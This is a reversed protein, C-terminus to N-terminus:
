LVKDVIECANSAAPLGCANAPTGAVPYQGGNVLQIWADAFGADRYKTVSVGANTYRDNTDGAIIVAQGQSHASIYSLVQDVGASRAAVDDSHDGADGHLNYLDVSAGAINIRMYTFGKPTLCDGGNLSCKDWKIRQLGTWSYRAVTNLGSGFPVGGSTATRYPHNDSAYIYAHYNFDEQMHVVDYNDRALQAGILGANTAKDGPVDNGNLFAPLGAVNYTLLNFDTAAVATIAICSCIGIASFSAIHVM